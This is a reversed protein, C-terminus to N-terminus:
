VVANYAQRGAASAHTNILRLAAADSYFAYEYEPNLQWWPAMFNSHVRMAAAFSYGTQYIRRPIRQPPASRRAAELPPRQGFSHPEASSMNVADGGGGQQFM